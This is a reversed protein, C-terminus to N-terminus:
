IEKINQPNVNMKRYEISGDENYVTQYGRAQMSANIVEFRAEAIARDIKEQELLIAENDASESEATQPLAAAPVASAAEPKDPLLSRSRPAPKETRASDAEPQSDPMPLTVSSPAAALADSKQAPEIRTTLPQSERHFLVLPLATLLILVAAAAAVKWRKRLIPANARFPRLVEEAEDDKMGRDFYAFLEQYNRWGEPVDDATRFYDSLQREEELTTLGDMFRAILRGIYQQTYATM